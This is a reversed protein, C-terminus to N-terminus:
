NLYLFLLKIVLESVLLTTFETLFKDIWKNQSLEVYILIKM